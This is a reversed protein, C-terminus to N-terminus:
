SRQQVQLEAEDAIDRWAEASLMDGRGDDIEARERCVTPANAGFRRIMDAAVVAVCEGNEM